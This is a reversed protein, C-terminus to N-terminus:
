HSLRRENQCCKRHHYIRGTRKGKSVRTCKVLGGKEEEGPEAADVEACML